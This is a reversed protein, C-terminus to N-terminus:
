LSRLREGLVPEVSGLSAKFVTLGEATVHPMDGITVKKLGPLAALTELSADDIALQVLTVEALSEFKSFDVFVPELADDDPLRGRVILETVEGAGVLSDLFAGTIPHVFEPTDDDFRMRRNKTLYNGPVRDALFKFTTQGTLDLGDFSKETGVVDWYRQYRLGTQESLWERIAPTYLSSGFSEIQFAAPLKEIPDVGTMEFLWVNRIAALADFEDDTLARFSPFREDTSDFDIGVVGKVFTGTKYHQYRSTFRASRMELPEAGKTENIAQQIEFASNPLGKSIAGKYLHTWPHEAFLGPFGRVDDATEDLFRTRLRNGATPTVFDPRGIRDAHESLVALSVEDCDISLSVLSPLAALDPVVDDTLDNGNLDLQAVSYHCSVIRRLQADTLGARPLSLRDASPLSVLFELQEATMAEDTSWRSVAALRPTRKTLRQLWATQTLWSPREELRVSFGAKEFEEESPVGDGVWWVTLGLCAAFVIGAVLVRRWRSAM